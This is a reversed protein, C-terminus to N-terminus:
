HFCSPGGSPAARGGARLASNLAILGRRCSRFPVLAHSGRPHVAGDRVGGDPRGRGARGSGCRAGARHASVGPNRLPLVWAAAYLGPRGASRDSSRASVARESGQRPQRVSQVPIARMTRPTRDIQVGVVGGGRLHTFLPLVALPTKEWTFWVFERACARRMRSRWSRPDPEGQMAVIVDVAFENKLLPGSTEWAGTHATVLGHGSRGRNRTRM